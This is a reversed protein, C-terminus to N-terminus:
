EKGVALAGLAGLLETVVAQDDGDLRGKFTPRSTGLMRALVGTIMHNFQRREQRFPARGQEKAQVLRVTAAAVTASEAQWDFSPDVQYKRGRFTVAQGTSAPM